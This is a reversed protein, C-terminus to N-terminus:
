TNVQNKFTNFEEELKNLYKDLHQFNKKCYRLGENWEDINDVFKQFEQNLETNHRDVCCSYCILKGFQWLYFEGPSTKSNIGDICIDADGFYQLAAKFNGLHIECNGLNIKLNFIERQNEEAIIEELQKLKHKAQKILDTEQCDSDYYKQSYCYAVLNYIEREYESETLNSLEKLYKLAQDYNKSAYEQNCLISAKNLKCRKLLEEENFHTKEFDEIEKLAQEFYKMQMYYDVMGLKNIKAAEAQIYKKFDENVDKIMERLKETKEEESSVTEQINRIETSIGDKEKELEKIEKELEKIESYGSFGLVFIFITLVISLITILLALATVVFTNYGISVGLDITEKKVEPKELQQTQNEELKPQQTELSQKQILNEQKPLNPTNQDQTQALVSQNHYSPNLWCFIVLVITMSIKKMCIHVLSNQSQM